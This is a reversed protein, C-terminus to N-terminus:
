PPLLQSSGSVGLSSILSGHILVTELHPVEQIAFIIVGCRNCVQGVEDM